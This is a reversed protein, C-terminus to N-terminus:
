PHRAGIQWCFLISHVCAYSVFSSVFCTVGDIAVRILDLFADSLQISMAGGRLLYEVSARDVILPADGGAGSLVQKYRFKQETHAVHKYTYINDRDEELVHGFVISGPTTRSQPLPRSVRVVSFEDDYGCSPM